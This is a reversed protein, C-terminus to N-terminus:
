WEPNLSKENQPSIQPSRHIALGFFGKLPPSKAPRNSETEPVMVELGRFGSPKLPKKNNAGGSNTFIRDM